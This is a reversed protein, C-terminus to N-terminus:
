QRLGVKSITAKLLSFPPMRGHSVATLCAQLLHPLSKMKTGDESVM